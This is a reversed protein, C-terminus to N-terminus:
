VFPSDRVAFVFEVFSATTGATKTSSVTRRGAAPIKSKPASGAERLKSFPVPEETIAPAGRELYYQLEGPHLGAREVLQACASVCAARIANVAYSDPPSFIQDGVVRPKPTAGDNVDGHLFTNHFVKDAMAVLTPGPVVVGVRLLIAAAASGSGLALASTEVQGWGQSNRHGMVRAVDLVAAQANKLFVIPHVTWSTAQNSTTETDENTPRIPSQYVSMDRFADFCSALVVAMTSGINGTTQLFSNVRLVERVVAAIAPAVSRRKPDVAQSSTARSDEKQGVGDGNTGNGMVQLVQNLVTAFDSCGLRRLGQGASNLAEVIMKALPLRAGGLQSRKVASGIVNVEQEVKIGFYEQVDHLTFSRMFDADFKQSRNLFATLCGRDVLDELKNVDPVYGSGFNLLNRIVWYNIENDDSEFQLPLRRCAGTAGRRLTAGAENEQDEKLRRLQAAVTELKRQSVTAFQAGVSKLFKSCSARVHQPGLAFCAGKSQRTHTRLQKLMPHQLLVAPVEPPNLPTLNEPKLAFFQQSGLLRTKYRGALKGKKIYREPIALQGNQCTGASSNALSTIRCLKTLDLTGTGAM